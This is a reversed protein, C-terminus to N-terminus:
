KELRNKMGHAEKGDRLGNMFMDVDEYSARRQSKCTGTKIEDVMKEVAGPVVVVLANEKVNDELSKIVGVVFGQFYTNQFKISDSRTWKVNSYDKFEEKKAEIAKKAFKKFVLYTWEFVEIFVQIDEPRGVVEIRGSLGGALLVRVRFHKSMATALERRNSSLGSTTEKIIHTIPAEEMETTETVSIGHKSMLEQAKRLANNAEGPQDSKSLRLLKKIKDVIKLDINETEM